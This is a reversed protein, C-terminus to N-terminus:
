THYIGTSYIQTIPAHYSYQKFMCGTYYNFQSIVLSVFTGKMTIDTIDEDMGSTSSSSEKDSDIDSHASLVHVAPANYQHNIACM